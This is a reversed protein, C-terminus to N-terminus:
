SLDVAVYQVRGSPLIGKIFLVKDNAQEIVARVLREVEEASRVPQNNIALLIFGKRIGAEAFKGNKDVGTVVVGYNVKLRTALEKTITKFTAGISSYSPQTVLETTGSRNTLSVSFTMPKGKRDVEIKVQDGPSYKAIQEQLEGMNRITIKNIETIVDGENIGADKAPSKAAFDLILAGETVKLDYRETLDSNINAGVVGIIARQVAGFQKIDAVVKSAISIPVAFSYGAYNGTQSYIMTNIGVLEGRTNVLAGGSNGPNVAADTQIFSSIKLDGQALSSRGKASVIGATVTSSLNFPNGIALVWEGVRLAESDGFPIPQLGKAEVKILAIDTDPDSGIVTAELEKNDNTTVAIRSAGHIVHHNTIIYGDPSIIVGSGINVAMPRRGSREPIGDEPMSPIGFLFEFPDIFRESRQPTPMAVECRINVVANISREAVEVFDQPTSTSSYSAPTLKPQNFLTAANAVDGSLETAAYGKKANAAHTVAVGALVGLFACVLAVLGIQLVNKKM